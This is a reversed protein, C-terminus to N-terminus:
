LRREDDIVTVRHPEWNSWRWFVVNIDDDKAGVAQSHIKIGAIKRDILNRAIRWSDPEVGAFYQNLWACGLAQETIAYHVLNAPDTLDLIPGCDVEYTCLTLPQTKYAFGQQAELWATEFRCSTYLAPTGIPNWRGGHIRAGEGSEPAFAWRPNHGRYVRGQYRSCGPPWSM